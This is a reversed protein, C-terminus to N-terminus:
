RAKLFDKALRLAEQENEIWHIREDKKFWTMQRKAYHWIALELQRVMEDYSLKQQLYKAIYRYELGLAELRKWSVGTKDHLTKVEDVMGADLRDLLRSHIRSRLEQPPKRIGIFLPEYPPQMRINPVKGLAHVIELARIIRRKNRPDIASARAPDKENLLSFLAGASKKELRARLKTNPPVEPIALGDVLARVYFGTGGCVIPLKGRRVIGAIAKRAFLVYQHVTFTRRPSAVDLLHHPIGKYYAAVGGWHQTGRLKRKTSEGRLSCPEYSIPVKGTGIDMGRYVQRSDASVVEGNFKKAIAVALDSKGSATPGVVVVIKPKELQPM